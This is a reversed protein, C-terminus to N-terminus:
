RASVSGGSSEDKELSAPNGHFSVSAGSSANAEAARAAFADVHAGSSADVNATDCKLGAGDFSAGSSIDVRLTKCAGALDISAGSSVDIEVDALQLSSGDVSAGSSVEFGSYAPASVTVRYRPGGGWNMMTQKRGIHLTKGQVEVILRDLDSGDPSEAKVDFNGQTVVVEVGASADIKEFGTYTSRLSESYPAGSASGVVCGSAAFAAAAPILLLFARQM